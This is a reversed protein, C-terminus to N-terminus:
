LHILYNSPPVNANVLLDSREPDDPEINFSPSQNKDHSAMGVHLIGVVWFVCGFYAKM